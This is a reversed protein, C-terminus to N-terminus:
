AGVSVGEGSGTRAAEEEVEAVGRKCEGAGDVHCEGPENLAVSDLTERDDRADDNLPFNPVAIDHRPLPTRPPILQDMPNKLPHRNPLPSIPIAQEKEKEKRKSHIISCQINKELTCQFLYM